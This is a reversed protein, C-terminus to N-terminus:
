IGPLGQPGPPGQPGTLGNCCEYCPEGKDGTIVFLFDRNVYMHFSELFLIIGLGCFM